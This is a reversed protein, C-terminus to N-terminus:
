RNPLAPATRFTTNSTLTRDGGTTSQDPTEIQFTTAGILSVSDSPASSAGCCTGGAPQPAGGSGNTAYYHNGYLENPDTGVFIYSKGTVVFQFINGPAPPASVLTEPCTPAGDNESQCLEENPEQDISATLILSGANVGTVLGAKVAAVAGNSSSWSASSTYNYQTGSKYQVTFTEQTTGSKPM